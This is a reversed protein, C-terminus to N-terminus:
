PGYGELVERASGADRLRNRWATSDLWDAFIAAAAPGGEDVFARVMDDTSAGAAQYTQFHTRLARDFAEEGLTAYLAAFMLRGVRYSFDTLHEAGYRRMPVAGCAEDGGCRELLRTATSEYAAAEGDWGDIERALRGQLFMALGENWRPSPADLDVVNWLHTLEHYLEGRREPARFADAELIIGGSLSAQSGWGDPIEMITLALPRDLPGLIRTLREAAQVSADLLSRAGASDEPFHFVKLDGAQVVAYPAIAVILYPAAGRSRFRWTLLDGDADRGIEEGGTAVVLDAPVTVAAEFDFAARPASRNSALSPLGVGPFARADERLITFAPDIHDRVYRMGTETYGVLHGEYAVSLRISAGPPLPASLEVDIVNVQFREWDEYSTVAQRVALARGDGDTASTVRMLRHLLLPVETLPAQSVNRLTLTATGALRESEFDPRVDLALHTLQPLATLPQSEQAAAPPGIAALLLAPLLARLAPPIPLIHHRV